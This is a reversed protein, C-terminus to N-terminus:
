RSSSQSARAQTPFGRTRLANRFDDVFAKLARNSRGARYLDMAEVLEHAFEVGGLTAPLGSDRVADRLVSKYYGRECKLNGIRPQSGVVDKFTVPDCVYWCEIHPDPCALTTRSALDPKLKQMIAKRASDFGRCNADIAVVVLDPSVVKGGLVVTQFLLLEHEARGQGGRGSRVRLDIRVGEERAIRLVLSSIFEEHAIDECFLELRIRSM